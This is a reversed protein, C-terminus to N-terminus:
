DLGCIGTKLSNITKLIIYKSHSLINKRIMVTPHVILNEFLMSCKIEEDNIPYRHTFKTRLEGFGSIWSGVLGIDPNKILYSLQIKLRDHHSINDADM